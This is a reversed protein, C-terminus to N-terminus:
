DPYPGPSPNGGDAIAKWEGHEKGWVTFYKGHHDKRGEPTPLSYVYTGWTFALDKSKAIRGGLPQWVLTTGEPAAMSAVAADHGIIPHAGGDLKVVDQALYHAFAPVIGKEQAMRSFALDVAMIEKADHDHEPGALTHPAICIVTLIFAFLRKTM